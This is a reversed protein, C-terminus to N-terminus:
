SALKAEGVTGHFSMMAGTLNYTESGATVTAFPLFFLVISAVSFVILVIRLIDKTLKM